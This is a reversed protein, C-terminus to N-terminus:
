GMEFMHAFDDFQIMVEGLKRTFIYLFQFWWREFANQRGKKIKQGRSATAVDNPPGLFFVVGPEFGIWQLITVVSIIPMAFM